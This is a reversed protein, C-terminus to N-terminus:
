EHMKISAIVYAYAEEKTEASISIIDAKSSLLQSLQMSKDKRGAIVLDTNCPPKTALSWADWAQELDWAGEPRNGILRAFWRHVSPCKELWDVLEIPTLVKIDLWQGQTKKMSLWNRYRWKRTTVFVFTSAKKDIGEPNKTRKSYDENAKKAVSKQTSLEWASEGLPVYANGGSTKLIGDWGKELVSDGSPFRILSPSVSEFILRKVLLPLTEQARRPNTETWKVIHEATVHWGTSM